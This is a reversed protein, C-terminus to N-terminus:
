VQFGAERIIEPTTTFKGDLMWVEEGRIKKHYKKLRGMWQLMQEARIHVPKFPTKKVLSNRPPPKVLVIPICTFTLKAEPELERARIRAECRAKGREKEILRLKPIQPSRVVWGDETETINVNIKREVKM